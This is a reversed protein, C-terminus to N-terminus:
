MVAVGHDLPIKKMQRQDVVSAYGATAASQAVSGSPGMVKEV